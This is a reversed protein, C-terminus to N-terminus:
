FAKKPTESIDGLTPILYNEDDTLLV